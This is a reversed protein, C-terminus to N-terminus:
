FALVPTHRALFFRDHPRAIRERGSPRPKDRVKILANVPREIYEIRVDPGIANTYGAAANTSVVRKAEGETSEM